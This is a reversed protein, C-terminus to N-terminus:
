FYMVFTVTIFSIFISVTALTLSIIIITIMEKIDNTLFYMVFTVTIFSIFISVTALTLSIIIITIM